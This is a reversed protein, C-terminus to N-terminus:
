TLFRTVKLCKKLSKKRSQMFYFSLDLDSIQSVTGESHGELVHIKFKM